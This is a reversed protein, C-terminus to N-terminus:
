RLGPRPTCLSLTPGRAIRNWMRGLADYTLGIGDMTIARGYADWTYTHVSDNTM